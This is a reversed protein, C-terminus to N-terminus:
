LICDLGLYLVEKLTNQPDKTEKLVKQLVNFYEAPMELEVSNTGLCLSVQHSFPGDEGLALNVRFKVAQERTLGMNKEYKSIRFQRRTVVFFVQPTCGKRKIIKAQSESPVFSPYNEKKYNM